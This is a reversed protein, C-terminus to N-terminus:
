SSRHRGGGRHTLVHLSRAPRRYDAAHIWDPSVATSISLKDAFGHRCRPLSFANRCGNRCSTARRRITPCNPRRSFRGRPLPQAM